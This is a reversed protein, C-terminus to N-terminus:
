VGQLQLKKFFNDLEQRVAAGIDQAESEKREGNISINIVPSISSTNTASNSITQTKLTPVTNKTGGLARFKESADATLVMENKHLYAPYNDYPVADLGTAHFNADAMAGASMRASEKKGKSFFEITGKIPNKFFEKVSNWKESIRDLAGVAKDKLDKFGEKVLEIPALLYGKLGGGLEQAKAKIKGWNKYLLIGAGIVLGVIGITMGLPSCFFGIVAKGVGIAGGSLLGFGKVLLSSKGIVFGLINGASGLVGAVTGVVSILPGAVVIIGAWQVITDKTDDDLSNFKDSLWTIGDALKEIYPSLKGGMDILSNKAKNTAEKLREAPGMLKQMNQDAVGDSNKVLDLFKKYEDATEGMMFNAAKGASMDGFMDELTVNAETSYKKIYELADGVSHGEKILERFSKGTMKRLAKDTKSGTKGMEAIMANLTTTALEANMGKATLIAYSAGVQELGVGAAAATPIIRGMSYGLEDVTVKGLNQTEILIDHMKGLEPAAKGYANKITTSIDIATDMDTFGAKMLKINKEVFGKVEKQDVGSSLATYMAKAVEQQAVGSMDSIERVNKKIQDAPLVNEDTLTTIQRIASDLGLAEKAAGRLALSLPLTALTMKKGFKSMSSGASSLKGSAAQVKGGLKQFAVGYKDVNKAGEEMKKKIKDIAGNIKRINTSAKDKVGLQWYLERLNAM